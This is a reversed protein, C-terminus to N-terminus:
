EGREIRDVIEHLVSVAAEHLFEETMEERMMAVIRARVDEAGACRLCVEREITVPLRCGNKCILM